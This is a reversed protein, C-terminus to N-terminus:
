IILFAAKQISKEKSLDDCSVKDYNNIHEVYENITFKISMNSSILANEKDKDFDNCVFIYKEANIGNINSILVNTAVVANVTQNTVIVVKDAINILQAKNEDFTTDADVIIFDYDNSKKASQVLKEYVSYNIGLSMLSTKFPPLYSFLEKRIVHKIEDYINPNCQSLKAYVDNTSIPSGNALYHQFTHMHEANVYLVKKYNKTLCASMGLALTTKGAGGCASYVVVIQPEKKNFHSVELLESAKGTIENFIEKISTYKFIKNVNLEATSDEEYQETMLFIYGINQKQLSPEYLDESVILIDARQPSSFLDTFYNEDSIIELNVKDFFDEVFKLQLPIIYNIDTDAIIIRPKGM